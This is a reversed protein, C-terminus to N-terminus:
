RGRSRRDSAAATRGEREEPGPRVSSREDLADVGARTPHRRATSDPEVPPMRRSSREACGGAPAVVIM